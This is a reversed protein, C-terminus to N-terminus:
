QSNARAAGWQIKSNPKWLVVQSMFMCMWVGCLKDCNGLRPWPLWSSAREPGRLAVISRLPFELADVRKITLDSLREWQIEISTRREFSRYLRHLRYYLKHQNFARACLFLDSMSIPNTMRQGIEASHRRGTQRTRTLHVDRIMSFQQHGLVM